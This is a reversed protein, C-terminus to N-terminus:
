SCSKIFYEFIAFHPNEKTIQDQNNCFFEPHWQLGIAFKKNKIEIAEICGDAAIASIAVKDSIEAIAENHNSNVTIENNKIIKHLLSDKKIDIIHDRQYGFHNIKTALYKHINGTLKCGLIAGMVQMGACIGLIPKNIKLAEKILSEEFILRPSKQYPSTSDQDLYWEDPSKYFGGPVILGDINELYYKINNLSSYPILWAVGGALNVANVYNTKLAFHESQSYSGKEQWDVIIGIKPKNKM